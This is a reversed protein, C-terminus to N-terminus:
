HTPYTPDGGKSTRLSANVSLDVTACLIAAKRLKLVLPRPVCVQLITDTTSLYKKRYTQLNVRSHRHPSCFSGKMQPLDMFDPWKPLLLKAPEPDNKVDLVDIAQYFASAVVDALQLGAVSTHPVYDVLNFHLVQHKIERRRLYTTESSAQAKLHEWYAKTQGYEHGGRQSFLVRLYRPANYKKISDRLCFDTVREILFRVCFNYFWQKSRMIAARENSWGRMNKKNSCVAFCVVEKEAIM